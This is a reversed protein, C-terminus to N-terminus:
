KAPPGAEGTILRASTGAPKARSVDGGVGRRWGPTSPFILWQASARPAKRQRIHRTDAGADPRILCPAAVHVRRVLVGLTTSDSHRVDLAVLRNGLEALVVLRAAQHELFEVVPGVKGQAGPGPVVQARKESVQRM